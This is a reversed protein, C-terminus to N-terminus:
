KFLPSYTLCQTKCNKRNTRVQLTLHLAAAAVKSAHFYHLNYDLFSLMILYMYLQYQTETLSAIQSFFSAFEYRTPFSIDFCLVEFIKREMAFLDERTFTHKTFELVTDVCPPQIILVYWVFDLLCPFTWLVSNFTWFVSFFTVFLLFFSNTWVWLVFM